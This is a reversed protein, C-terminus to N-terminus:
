SQVFENWPNLGPKHKDDYLINADWPQGAISLQNTFQWIWGRFDDFTNYQANWVPINYTHVLTLWDIHNTLWHLSAYLGSQLPLINDFWGRCIANVHESAFNFGHHEKYKDDDEMDFFVPLELLVGSNRIIQKCFEAEGVADEPTLAYSYHYAGVQLGVNHADNVDKAFNEEALTRGCGTRIIVFDVGSNKIAQWPLIGDPFRDHNWISIDLGVM